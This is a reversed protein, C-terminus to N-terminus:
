QFFNRLMLGILVGVIIKVIDWIRDGLLPFRKIRVREFYHCKNMNQIVQPTIRREFVNPEVVVYMTDDHYPTELLDFLKSKEGHKEIDACKCAKKPNDAYDCWIAIDKLGRGQQEMANGLNNAYAQLVERSKPDTFDIVLYYPPPIKDM